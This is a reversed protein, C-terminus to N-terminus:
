RYESSIFLLYQRKVNSTNKKSIPIDAGSNMIISTGDLKQVHSFNVLFSKHVQMFGKERTLEKIEEEFSKRIFISTIATRDTLHIRLMRSSNEIYEIKSFPVSILGDKTKVPFIPDKVGNKQTLAFSLAEFFTQEQVPKLLYRLAHVGYADLAFDDSSTTYIIVANKGSDKLLTGIDIGTTGNMIIDLIYIDSLRKEQIKRFLLSPDTYKELEFDNGPYLTRYNAILQEIRALDKMNDDCITIKM